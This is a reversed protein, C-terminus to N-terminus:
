ENHPMKTMSISEPLQALDEHFQEASERLDAWAPSLHVIPKADALTMSRWGVLAIISDTRSAGADRMSRLVTDVPAGSDLLERFRTEDIAM